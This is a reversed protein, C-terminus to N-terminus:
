TPTARARLHEPLVSAWIKGVLESRERAPIAGLADAVEPPLYLVVRQKKKEGLKSRGM